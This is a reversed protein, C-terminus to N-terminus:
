TFDQIGASACVVADNPFYRGEDDRGFELFAVVLGDGNKAMVVNDLTDARGRFQEVFSLTLEPDLGVAHDQFWRVPDEIRGKPNAGYDWGVAGDQEGAPCRIEGDFAEPEHSSRSISSPDNPPDSCAPPTTILIALAGSIAFMRTSVAQKM